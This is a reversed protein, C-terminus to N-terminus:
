VVETPVGHQTWFDALQRLYNEPDAPYCLGHDAGPVLILGKPSVCAEYNTRSMECPVFGDDEGHVFLIPVTCTQMAELPTYAELDFHGFLKAGLKVFPYALKVPLHMERITKEIMDRASTFGCDALVGKVQDPLPKGAAMLVTAAGMSIGTLIITVDPGFKEVCFDVWKLCDRHENVGFSIVHGDSQGSTRQDVLLASRGLAFCRQVGGCLDREASGRYGHFMLEMPAGPAYEYYKGTLTLGDFSRISVNEYPLQRVERVWSLMVDRYPAYVPGPPLCEEESLLHKDNHAYFSKRYCAWAIFVVLAACLLLILLLIM